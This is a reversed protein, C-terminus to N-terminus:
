KLRLVLNILVESDTREQVARVSQLHGILEDIAASAHPLKSFAEINRGREESLKTLKDNIEAISIPEAVPRQRVSKVKGLGRLKKDAKQAQKLSGRFSAQREIKTVPFLDLPQTPRLGLKELADLVKAFDATELEYSWHEKYPTLPYIKIWHQPVPAILGPESKWRTEEKREFGAGLVLATLLLAKV